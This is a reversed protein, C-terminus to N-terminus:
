VNQKCFDRSNILYVMESTQLPHPCLLFCQLNLFLCWRNRQAAWGVRGAQTLEKFWAGAVHSSLCRGRWGWSWVCVTYAQEALVGYVSGVKRSINSRSWNRSDLVTPFSLNLSWSAVLLLLFWGLSIHNHLPSQFQRFPFDGELNKRGM